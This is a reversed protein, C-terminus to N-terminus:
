LVQLLLRESESPWTNTGLMNLGARSSTRGLTDGVIPDFFAIIAINKVPVWNGLSAQKGWSWFHLLFDKV